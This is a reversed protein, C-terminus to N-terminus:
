ARFHKQRNKRTKQKIVFDLLLKRQPQIDKITRPFASAVFAPSSRSSKSAYRGTSAPNPCDEVLLLTTPSNPNGNPCGVM